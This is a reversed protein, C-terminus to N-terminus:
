HAFISIAFFCVATLGVSYALISVGLDSRRGGRMAVPKLNIKDLAIWLTAISNHARRLRKKLRASSRRLYIRTQILWPPQPVGAELLVLLLLLLAIGLLVFNIWSLLRHSDM